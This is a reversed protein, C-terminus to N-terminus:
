NFIEAREVDTWARASLRQSQRSSPVPVSVTLIENEFTAAAKEVHAEDPLPIERMFSRCFRESWYMGEPREDQEPKHEGRITLMDQSLEVSVDDKSLGPLEACVKIQGDEESIAISPSWVTMVSTSLSWDEFLRDICETFRRKLHGQIKRGRRCHYLADDVQAHYVSTVSTKLSRPAALTTMGKQPVLGFLQTPSQARIM